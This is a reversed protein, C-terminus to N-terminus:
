LLHTLANALVQLAWERNCGIVTCMQFARSHFVCWSSYIISLTFYILNVVSRKICEIETWYCNLM